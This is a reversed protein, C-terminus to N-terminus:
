DDERIRLIRGDRANVEIEFLRGERVAKIELRDHERGVKVVRYGDAELKSVAADASPGGGDGHDGHDSDHIEDYRNDNDARESSRAPASLVLLAAAALLITHKM